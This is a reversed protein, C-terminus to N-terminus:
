ALGALVTREGGCARAIWESAEDPSLPKAYHYGQLVQCGADAAARAHDETEIGEAEVNMHLATALECIARVVAVSEPEPLPDILGKDIKVTNLRLTRLMNLSSYGTGFDDMAVEIGMARLEQVQAVTQEMNQVASSETIELSIWGPEVGTSELMRQVMQPFEPDLMQLPSVNVAVPVCSGYHAQWQAVRECATRLLLTGLASIMGTREAAAIFEVPPVPGVNKRTWRALAEFGVLAGTRADVKPQYVLKFEQADIGKRLAQEHDLLNSSGREFEKKALTHSTGPTKKAVHLAANAARLLSEADRASHPYLAIGMSADLFFKGSRARLPQALLQRVVGAIEVATEGARGLPSLIAFEDEGLRMVAHDDPLAERLSVGLSILIEDAVSHGHAENFLKFRDLDLLVLVFPLEGQTGKCRDHLTNLMAMRNPLGTLEDRLAQAALALDAEHRQTEDTVLVQLAPEGGWDTRFYQVRLWVPTGDLRHRMVEYTVEREQGTVVKKHLGLIRKRESLPVTEMVIQGTHEDLQRLGYIELFRPNAYRIVRQHVVAIGQLSRDTLRWFQDQMARSKGQTRSLAAYLLVMGLMMRLVAGLTALLAVGDDGMVVYIFQIAGLLVLLPGVLREASHAASKRLWYACLFGIFTNICAVSTQTLQLGGIAAALANTGAFIAFIVWIGRRTLVHGALQAAGTILLTTYTGAAIPLLGHALLSLNAGPQRAVSYLAPVLLQMLNALGLYLTFQQTRDRRWLLILAAGMVLSVTANIFLLYNM